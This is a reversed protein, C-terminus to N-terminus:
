GTATAHWWLRLHSCLGSEPDIEVVAIGDLALRPLPDGPKRAILNTGASAAWMKFMEESTVQYTTRWHAVGGGPHAHLVEYEVRIDRQLKTRQWYARIAEHGRQEAFPTNHYVGEPAFLSVLLNEDSREWAQQYTAMFTEIDM